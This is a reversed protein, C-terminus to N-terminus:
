VTVQIRIDGVSVGYNSSCQVGEGGNELSTFRKKIFILSSSITGDIISYKNM